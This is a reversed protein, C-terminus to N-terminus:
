YYGRSFPIAAWELVRAQPIGHVSSGPPSCDVPDCLSPCSQAVTVKVELSLDLNRLYAQLSDSM